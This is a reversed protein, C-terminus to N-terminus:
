EFLHDVQAQCHRENEVLACIAPVDQLVEEPEDNVALDHATQLIQSGLTAEALVVFAQFDGSRM